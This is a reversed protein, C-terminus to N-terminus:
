NRKKCPIAQQRADYSFFSGVVRGFGSHFATPFIDDRKRIGSGLVLLPEKIKPLYITEAGGRSNGVHEYKTPLNM